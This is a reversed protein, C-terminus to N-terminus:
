EGARLRAELAALGALAEATTRGNTGDWKRVIGKAAEEAEERAFEAKAWDYLMRMYLADPLFHGVLKGAPDRVELHQDLGNLRSKLDDDLIVTNM